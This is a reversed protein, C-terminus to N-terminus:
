MRAVVQSLVNIVISGIVAGFWIKLWQAYKQGAVPPNSADLQDANKWAFYLTYLACIVGGIGHGVGKTKFLQILFVIWCALSVLSILMGVIGLIALM